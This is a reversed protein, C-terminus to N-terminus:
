VLRQGCFPCFDIVSAYEGNHAVWGGTTKVISFITPGYCQIRAEDEMEETVKPRASMQRCTHQELEVVDDAADCYAAYTEALSSVFADVM